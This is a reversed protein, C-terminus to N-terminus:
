VGERPVMIPMQTEPNWVEMLDSDGQARKSGDRLSECVWCIRRRAQGVSGKNFIEHGCELREMQRYAHYNEYVRHREYHIVKRYIRPEREVWEPMM